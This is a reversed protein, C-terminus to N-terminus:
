SGATIMVQLVVRSDTNALYAEGLDFNAKFTNSSLEEVLSMVHSIYRQLVVQKVPKLNRGLYFFVM